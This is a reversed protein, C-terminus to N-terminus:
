VMHRASGENGADKLTNFEKSQEREKTNMNYAYIKDNRSSDALWMTTGDSWIGQPYVFFENIRINSDDNREETNINTPKFKFPYM